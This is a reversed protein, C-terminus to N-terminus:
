GHVPSPHDINMANLRSRRTSDADTSTITAAPDTVAQPLEASWAAPLVGPPAALREAM